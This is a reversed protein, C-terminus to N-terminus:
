LHSAGPQDRARAPTALQLAASATRPTQSTAPCIRYSHPGRRTSERQGTLSTPRRPHRECSPKWTWPVFGLGAPRGDRMDLDKLSFTAACAWAYTAQEDDFADLEFRGDIVPVDWNLLDVFVSKRDEFMTRLVRDESPGACGSRVIVEM